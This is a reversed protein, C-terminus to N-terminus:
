KPPFNCSQMVKLRSLPWSVLICAPKCLRLWLSVSSFLHHQKEKRQRENHARSGWLVASRDNETWQGVGSHHQFHTWVCVFLFFLSGMWLTLAYILMRKKGWIGSWTCTNHVCNQLPTNTANPKSHYTDQFIQLKYFVAKDIVWICIWQRAIPICAFPCTLNFKIKKKIRATHPKEVHSPSRNGYTMSHLTTWTLPKPYKM